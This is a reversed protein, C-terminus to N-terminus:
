GPPPISALPNSEAGAGASQLEPQSVEVKANPEVNFINALSDPQQVADPTVKVTTSRQGDPSLKIQAGQFTGAPLLHVADEATQPQAAEEPSGGQWFNPDGLAAECHKTFVAHALKQGLAYAKRIANM